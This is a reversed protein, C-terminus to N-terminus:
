GAEKMLIAHLNETLTMLEDISANNKIVNARRSIVLINGKVYGKEPILRDLSASDDAAQGKNRKLQIGLLPCVDPIEFDDITIHFPVGKRRARNKASELLKRKHQIYPPAATAGRKGCGCSRTRGKNLDDVPRLVENGCECILRAFLETKGRSKHRSPKRLTEIVTLKGYTTM